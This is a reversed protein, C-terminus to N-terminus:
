STSGSTGTLSQAIDAVIAHPKAVLRRWTVRLVRINAAVLRADRIRDREFADRGSHFAFGDVEVVLGQEPWFMDVESGFVRVNHDPVPLEAARILDLLRREAESRTLAPGKELELVARIATAGPRGGALERELQTRTVLRRRFADAIARELELSSAESAMDVLARAVSTVPVGRCRAADGVSLRCRHLRIGTRGRRDPGSVHVDGDPRTGLAWLYAASAHSVLARTGCALVAAMERDFDLPATHGVRYVGRHVRHLGGREVRGQISGPGM